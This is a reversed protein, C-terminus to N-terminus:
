GQRKCDSGDSHEKRSDPNLPSGRWEMHRTSGEPARFSRGSRASQTLTYPPKKTRCTTAPTNKGPFVLIKSFPPSFVEPFSSNELTRAHPGWGLGGGAYRPLSFRDPPFSATPAPPTPPPSPTIPASSRSARPAASPPSAKSTT